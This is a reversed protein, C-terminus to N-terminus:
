VSHGNMKRLLIGKIKLSNLANINLLDLMQIEVPFDKGMKILHKALTLWNLKCRMM